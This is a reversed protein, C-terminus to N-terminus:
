IVFVVFINLICQLISLMYKFYQKFYMYKLISGM